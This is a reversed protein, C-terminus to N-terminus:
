CTANKLINSVPTEYKTGVSAGEVDQVAKLAACNNGRNVNAQARLLGALVKQDATMRSAPPLSDLRLLAEAAQASTGTNLDALKSIQELQADVDLPPAVPPVPSSQPRVSDVVSAGASSDAAGAAAPRFKIYGGIGIVVAAAIVAIM